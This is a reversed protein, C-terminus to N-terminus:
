LGNTITRQAGMKTAAATPREFFMAAGCSIKRYSATMLKHQVM